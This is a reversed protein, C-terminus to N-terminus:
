VPPRPAVVFWVTRWGALPTGSRGLGTAPLAIRRGSAPEYVALEEDPGSGVVLVVHRPLWRSGVYVATLPPLPGPARWRVTRTRYSTGTADALERAVAWPPTGLAQPWPVQWRGRADRLGTLRQHSRLVERAFGDQAATGLVAEVDEPRALLRAVLVSSPGCTRADPQRLRLALVDRPM